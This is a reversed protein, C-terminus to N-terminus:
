RELPMKGLQLTTVSALRRLVQQLMDARMDRYLLTEEEEKALAASEAFGIERQLAIETEPILERGQPTILRFRLRLRLQFERVQGAANLGAVIKERQESRVELIADAGARESPLQLVRLSSSHRLARALQQGLSTGEPVQLYLTRFAFQPPQRLAFGCGSLAATAATLLCLRRQMRM